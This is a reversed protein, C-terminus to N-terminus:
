PQCTAGSAIVAPYFILVIPVLPWGAPIEWHLHFPVSNNPAQRHISTLKASYAYGERTERKGPDSPALDIKQYSRWIRGHGGRQPKWRGAQEPGWRFGKERM